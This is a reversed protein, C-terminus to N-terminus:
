DKLPMVSIAMMSKHKRVQLKIFYKIDDKVTGFCINGSDQNDFVKFVKGYVSLFNFDYPKKIKFKIGDIEQMM